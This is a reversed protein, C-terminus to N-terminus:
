ENKTEGSLALLAMKTKVAPIIPEFIIKEILIIVSITAVYNHQLQSALVFMALVKSYGWIKDIAQRFKGKENLTDFNIKSSNVKDSYAFVALLIVGFFLLISLLTASISYVVVGISSLIKIANIENAGDVFLIVIFVGILWLDVLSFIKSVFKSGSNSM